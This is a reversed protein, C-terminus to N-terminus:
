GHARAGETRQDESSTEADTDDDLLGTPPDVVVRGAAIDVTPFCARTFPLVLTNGGSRCSIEVVDGAGHDGVAVITGLPLGEATVADLGILDVCYFEDDDDTHPLRDRPVFLQRGRWAVAAERDHVGEIEAIFHGKARGVITVDFTGRGAEDTFPGYDAIAEPDATFARLRVLGRVGHATAIQGVCVLPRDDSRTKGVM